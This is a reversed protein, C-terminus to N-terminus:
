TLILPCNVFNRLFLYEVSQELLRSMDGGMTFVNEDFVQEVHILACLRPCYSWDQLAALIIPEPSEKKAAASDHAYLKQM